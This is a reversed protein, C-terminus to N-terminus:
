GGGAENQWEAFAQELGARNQEYFGIGEGLVREVATTFAAESL